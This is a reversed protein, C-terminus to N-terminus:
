PLCSPLLTLNIAPWRAFGKDFTVLSYSHGEAFAALYADTWSSPGVGAETMLQRWTSEVGDPEAAFVLRRDASLLAFTEWAQAISRPSRAMVNSNTLGVKASPPM